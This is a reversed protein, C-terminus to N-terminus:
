LNVTLTIEAVALRPIRRTEVKAVYVSDSGRHWTLTATTGETDDFDDADAIACLGNVTAERPKRFRRVITQGIITREGDTSVGASRGDPFLEWFTLSGLSADTPPFGAPLGM